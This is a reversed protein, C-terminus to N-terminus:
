LIFNLMQLSTNLNHKSSITNNVEVIYKNIFEQIKYILADGKYTNLHPSDVIDGPFHTQNRLKRYDNAINIIEDPINLLSKYDPKEIIIAFNISKNTLGILKNLQRQEDYIYNDIAFYEERLIPREGQYKSLEKFNPLKHNFVHLICNKSLLHARLSLEFGLSIKMYELNMHKLRELTTPMITPFNNIAIKTEAALQAYKSILITDTFAYYAERYLYTVGADRNLDDKYLLHSRIFVDSGPLGRSYAEEYTIDM